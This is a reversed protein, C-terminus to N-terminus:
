VSKAQGLNATARFIACASPSAIASPWNQQLAEPVSSRVYRILELKDAGSFERLNLRLKRSGARLTIVDGYGWQCSTVKSLLIETSFRLGHVIIRNPETVVVFRRERLLALASAISLSGFFAPFLYLQPRQPEAAALFLSGVTAATFGIIPALLLFQGNSKPRYSRTM